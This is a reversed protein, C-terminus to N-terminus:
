HTYHSLLCGWKFSQLSRLCLTDLVLRRGQSTHSLPNLVLRHVLPDGTRNGTLACAQTAPWTRLLPTHSLCGCMSTERGRKRGEGKPPSSLYILLYIFLINKFIFGIKQRGKWLGARRGVNVAEYYVWWTLIEFGYVQCHLNKREKMWWM